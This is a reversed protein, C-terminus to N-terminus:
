RHASDRQEELFRLIPPYVKDRAVFRTLDQRPVWAVGANEVTDRNEAEGTLFDCAFYECYVGTTPHLRSGIRQRALCHIGTESLTERVAVDEARAGPKIVGAPFQWSIGAGDDRRKVLLVDHNHTVVSIAVRLAQAHGAPGNESGSALEEFRQRTGPPAQGLLDDLADQVSVRPIMEPHAAWNAVTRPAVGLRTAFRDVTMRLAKRLATATHGTWEQAPDM